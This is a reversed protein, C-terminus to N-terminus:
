RTAPGVPGPKLRVAVWAATALLAGLGFAIGIQSWDTNSSGTAESAKLAPARTLGQAVVIRRGAGSDARPTFV